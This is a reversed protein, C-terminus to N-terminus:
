LMTGLVADQSSVVMVHVQDVVAAEKVRGGADELIPDEFDDL